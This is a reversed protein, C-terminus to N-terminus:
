RDLSVPQVLMSLIGSMEPNTVFDGSDAIEEQRKNEVWM